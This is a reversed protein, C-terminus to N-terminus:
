EPHPNGWNPHNKKKKTANKQRFIWSTLKKKFFLQTVSVGNHLHVVKKNNNVWEETSTGRPQKWNRSLIFLYAILITSCINKYYSPAGKSYISLLLITWNQLLHIRLTRLFWSESSISIEITITNTQVGCPPPTQEGKEVDKGAHATVQIISRLWESM